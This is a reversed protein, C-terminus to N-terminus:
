PSRHPPPPPRRRLTQRDEDIEFGSRELHQVMQDALQRRADDSVPDQLLRRKPIVLGALPAYPKINRFAFYTEDDHLVRAPLERRLLKGFVTPNREIDEALTSYRERPVISRQCGFARFMEPLTSAWLGLAFPACLLM